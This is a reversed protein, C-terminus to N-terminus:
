AQEELDAPSIHAPLLALVVLDRPGHAGYALTLQIDATKSPGSVLILNTPMGNELLKEGALAHHFEGYMNAADFLCFHIPPVLSLSRPEQPSSELMITGTRAIGCKSGSFGADVQTFFEDKWEDIVRDYDLAEIQTGELAAKAKQGHETQHPLVINRIGKEEAAQRFVEQWNHENVWYIETKVARMTAAWHKLRSVEDDWTMEHTQYYGFTDPEAMPYADAKKLKALINDRASM